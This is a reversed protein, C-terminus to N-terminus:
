PRGISWINAARLSALVDTDGELIAAPALGDMTLNPDHKVRVRVSWFWLIAAVMAALGSIVNLVTKM